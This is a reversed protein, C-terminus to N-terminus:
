VSQLDIKRPATVLPELPPLLPQEEIPRLTKFRWYDATLVHMLVHIAKLHQCRATPLPPITTLATFASKVRGELELELNLVRLARRM